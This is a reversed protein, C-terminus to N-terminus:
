SKPLVKFKVRASLAALTGDAKFARVQWFYTKGAELGSKIEEPLPARTETTTASWVLANGALSVRYEMAPGASKWEIFSPVGTVGGVPFVAAVSAGRVTEDGTFIFDPSVAARRSLLFWLALLVVVASGAVIAWRPPTLFAPRGRIATKRSVPGAEVKEEAEFVDEEKLIQIIEDRESMKEFCSRCIFYHEEFDTQEEPNMRDLLYSDILDEYRCKRMDWVQRSKLM